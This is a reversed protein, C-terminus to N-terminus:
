SHNIDQLQEISEIAISDSIMFIGTKHPVIM